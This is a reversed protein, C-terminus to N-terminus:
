VVPFSQKCMRTYVRACLHSPFQVTQENWRREEAMKPWLHLPSSIRWKGSQETKGLRRESRVCTVKHSSFNDMVMVNGPRLAPYLVHDLYALFIEADTAAEITMTAIM